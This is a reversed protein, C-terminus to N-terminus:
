RVRLEVKGPGSVAISAQRGTFTNDPQRAVITCSGRLESFTLTAGGVVAVQTPPPPRYVVGPAGDFECTVSTEIDSTLGPMRSAAVIVQYIPEDTPFRIQAHARRRPWSINAEWARRRVGAFSPSARVSTKGDPIGVFSAVGSGDTVVDAVVTPLNAAAVALQVVTPECPGSGCTITVDSASSRKMTLNVSLNGRMHRVLTRATGAPHSITAVLVVGHSRGSYPLDLQGSADARAMVECAGIPTSSTAGMFVSYSEDRPWARTAEFLPGAGDWSEAFSGPTACGNVAVFAGGAPSGDHLRIRFRVHHTDPAPPPRGSDATGIGMGVTWMLLM